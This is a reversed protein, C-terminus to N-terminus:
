AGFGEMHRADTSLDAPAGKIRGVVGLRKAVTLADEGPAPAGAAENERVLREVAERVVEAESRGRERALRSLGRDISEELELTVKRAVM